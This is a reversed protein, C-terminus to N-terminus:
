QPVGSTGTVPTPTGDVNVTYSGPEHTHDSPLDVGGISLAGAAVSPAVVSAGTITGTVTQQQLIQM